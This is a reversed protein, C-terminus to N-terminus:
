LHDHSAETSSELTPILLCPDQEIGLILDDCVEADQEGPDGERTDGDGERCPQKSYPDCM